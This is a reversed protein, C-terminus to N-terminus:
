ENGALEERLLYDSFDVVFSKVPSGLKKLENEMKAWQFGPNCKWQLTAIYLYEFFKAQEEADLNAFANACHWADVEWSESM